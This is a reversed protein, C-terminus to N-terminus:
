AAIRLVIYPGLIVPQHFPLTNSYRKAQDVLRVTSSCRSGTSKTINYFITIEENTLVVDAVFTDLLRACFAEDDVDGDRFSDLWMAIVERSLMPREIEAARIQKQLDKEENELESLRSVLAAGGGAEIAEVINRQRKRCGDLRSRLAVTPDNARDDEQIKMIRDTLKGIMEDTLVDTITAELVAMELQDKPIAKLECKSGRKKGGCKYYNYVKGSKGAGSEGQVLKGCYGCHCRCSLMYDVNARGAANCRSTKFHRAAEEFTSVDIIPEVDLKVGQIEWAGTYREQRLMRYIAANSLTSGRRGKVGARTFLERLEATTAGAIHMQFAKQVLPAVDPDPVPHRDADLMYGIPLLGGNVRGKKASERIGRSVKQRLDASYYEALGELVSELIIGEPGDPVAEQAYYLRVGAKKLKMKNIAIDQRSRGFRDIKWVIVAEFRHEQADRIMQLFEDRGATSKGSVHRDAYVKAVQIGHQEAYAMCDAVQGEISQDTQRPGESYRAYIVGIM